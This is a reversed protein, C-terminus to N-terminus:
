PTYKTLYLSKVKVKDCFAHTNPLSPIAGRMRLRQAVHLHIDLKVARGGQWWPYLGGTGTSYSAPHVGPRDSRPPSSFFERGRGSIYVQDGVWLRTM